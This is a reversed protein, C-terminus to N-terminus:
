QNKRKESGSFTHRNGFAQHPHSKHCTGTVSLGFIPESIDISHGGALSVGAKECINLAGEMVSQAMATGLVAIPWGLLANAMLPKGGMAYIDSLSNCAAVQGFLFPDDVVPTFFDATQLLVLDNGLDYASADDALDYGVLLHESVFPKPLNALIEQLAQPHIKCGCGSSKSLRTIKPRPDEM